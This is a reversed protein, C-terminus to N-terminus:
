DGGETQAKEERRAKDKAAKEARKAAKEAKAAQKENYTAIESDMLEKATMDEREEAVIVGIRCYRENGNEDTLLVGYQRDNVKTYNLALTDSLLLDEFIATRLAANVSASSKMM